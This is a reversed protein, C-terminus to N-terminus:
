PKHNINQFLDEMFALVTKVAQQKKPEMTTALNLRELLNTFYVYDAKSLTYLSNKAKLIEIIAARQDNTPNIAADNLKKLLYRHVLKDTRSPDPKALSKVPKVVDDCNWVFLTKNKLRDKRILKGEEDVEVIKFDFYVSCLSMFTRYFNFSDTYYAPTNDLMEGSSLEVYNKIDSKISFELRWVDGKSEDLHGKWQDRIYSKQHGERNLELTKNYLKTHIPSSESGWSCYNYVKGRWKDNGHASIEDVIIGAGKKGFVPKEKSYSKFTTTHLKIYKNAFYRKLFDAPDDGRDFKQFDLAIDIRTLSKYNYHHLEIFDIMNQVAHPDYCARNPLRLHACKDPMIGGLSKISYPNRRVEMVAKGHIKLTFMERYQPTGYQRMDVDYGKKEFYEKDLPYDTGEVVFVELWDLSLLREM